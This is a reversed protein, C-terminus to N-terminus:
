LDLQMIIEDGDREGTLQFGVKEYLKKAGENGDIYCLIVKDYKGDMKMRELILKTAAIGYGNGQYRGDIFLQSLDYAELSTCDYYLAMGVACNDRYIVFAKSRFNRYAYARALLSADSSVYSKQAETVKLGLRWNDPTVEELRIM